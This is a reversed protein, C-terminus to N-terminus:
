VPVELAPARRVVELETHHDLMAPLRVSAIQATFTIGIGTTVKIWYSEEIPQAQVGPLYVTYRGSTQEFSGGAVSRTTSKQDVRCRTSVVAVLTQTVQGLSGKANVERYITATANLLREPFNM